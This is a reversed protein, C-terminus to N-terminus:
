QDLLSGLMLISCFVPPAIWGPEIWTSGTRTPRCEPAALIVGAGFALDAYQHVTDVKEANVESREGEAAM